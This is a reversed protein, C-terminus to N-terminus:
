WDSLLSKTKVKGDMFRLGIQKCAQLFRKMEEVIENHVEALNKTEYPDKEIDYLEYIAAKQV